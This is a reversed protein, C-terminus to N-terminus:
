WKITRYCIIEENRNRTLWGIASDLMEGKTEGTFEFSVDGQKITKAVRVEDDNILTSKSHRIIEGATKEEAIYLLEKPAEKLNTRNKISQTEHEFIYEMLIDDIVVDEGLVAKIIAIIHKKNDENMQGVVEEYNANPNVGDVVQRKGKEM